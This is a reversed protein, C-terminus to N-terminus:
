AKLSPMLHDSWVEIIRNLLATYTPEFQALFQEMANLLQNIEQEAEDKYYALGIRTVELQVRWIGEIGQADEMQDLQEKLEPALLPPLRGLQMSIREHLVHLMEEQAQDLQELREIYERFPSRIDGLIREQQAPDLQYRAQDEPTPDKGQLLEEVQQEYVSVLDACVQKAVLPVARRVPSLDITHLYAIINEYALQLTTNRLPNWFLRKATGLVEMVAFEDIELTQVMDEFVLDTDEIAFPLAKLLARQDEPPRKIHVTSELVEGPTTEYAPQPSSPAEPTPSPAVEMTHQKTAAPSAAPINPASTGELTHIPAAPQLPPMPPLGGGIQPTLPPLGPLQPSSPTTGPLTDTQPTLLDGTLPPLPPMGGLPLSDLIAAVKAPKSEPTLPPFSATQPHPSQAPTDNPIRKPSPAITPPKGYAQTGTLSTAPATNPSPTENAQRETPAVIPPDKAVPRTAIPAPVQQGHDQTHDEADPESEANAGSLPAASNPQIMSPSTALDAAGEAKEETKTQEEEEEGFSADMQVVVSPEEDADSVSVPEQATAKAEEAETSSVRQPISEQAEEAEEAEEGESTDSLSSEDAVTVTIMVEDELAPTTEAEEDAEQATQPAAEKPAEDAGEPASQTPTLAVPNQTPAEAEPTDREQTETNPTSSASSAQEDEESTDAKERPSTEELQTSPATPESVETSTLAEQDTEPNDPSPAEQAEALTISVSDTPPAETAPAEEQEIAQLEQALPDEPPTEQTETPPEVQISQGPEIAALERSVSLDDDQLTQNLPDSEDDLDTFSVHIEVATNSKGETQPSSQPPEQPTTPTEPTEKAGSEESESDDAAESQDMVELTETPFDETHPQPHPTHPQTTEPAKQKTEQISTEKDAQGAPDRQPRLVIETPCTNTPFQVVFCAAQAIDEPQIMRAPDLNDSAVMETNVYGPCIACVKINADRIEEFVSSAFGLVGHKSASYSSAGAVGTKGAISAIYIIAGHTQQQIHPLAFYTANMAARLNVDLTWEWEDISSSALDGSGSVGANNVLTHLAGLENICTEFAEKLADKDTIDLPLCLTKVGYEQCLSATQELEALQRALLAVHCGAKALALAIARGTGRSAGTILAVEGRIDRMM